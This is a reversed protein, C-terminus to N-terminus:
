FGRIILDVTKETQTGSSNYTYVDFSTTGNKTVTAYAGSSDQVTVGVQFQNHVIVDGLPSSGFTYTKNGGTITQDYVKETLEEVDIQYTLDTFEAATDSFQSEAKLKFQYHRATLQVASTM